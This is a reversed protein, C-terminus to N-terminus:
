TESEFDRKPWSSRKEYLVRLPGVMPEMLETLAVNFSCAKFEAASSQQTSFLVGFCM